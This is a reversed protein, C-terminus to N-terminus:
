NAVRIKLRVETHNYTFILAHQWSQLSIETGMDLDVEVPIKNFANRWMCLPLVPTENAWILSV